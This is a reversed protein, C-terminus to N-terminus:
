TDGFIKKMNDLEQQTPASAPASVKKKLPKKGSAKRVRIKKLSIKNACEEKDSQLDARKSILAIRQDQTLPRLLEADILDITDNLREGRRRSSRVTTGCQPCVAM